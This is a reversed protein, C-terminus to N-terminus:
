SMRVPCSRSSKQLHELVTKMGHGPLPKRCDVICPIFCCQLNPVFKGYYNAIGLFSKLESVNTPTPAERIAQVKDMMPHIGEGSVVHGLYETSSQMFRCKSRNLRVNAKRLRAFVKELTVLCSSDDEGFVLLDDIFGTRDEIGSLIKDMTAQFVPPATKVGYSLRKIRYLGKHTNLTLLPISNEELCLQNFAGSLDLTCFVKPCRGNHALQAFLDQVTPLPYKDDELCTNLRKYDGCIRVSLKEGKLKPVNVTPSAWDSSEVPEIIGAAELRLLEEEVAERLAYPVPRAKQFVPSQGEKLQLSASFGSIGEAPAEFLDAYEDLLEELSTCKRVEFLEKWNLKITRLWDRGMLACKPSSVVILPLTARQDGYMVPVSIEGLVPVQDGSYSTLVASCPKLPYSALLGQYVKEPILSCAAGTDVEMSLEAEGIRVTTFVPKSSPHSNQVSHLGFEASVPLQQSSSGMVEVDALQEPGVQHTSGSSLRSRCSVAFHGTKGCNRCTKGKAPCSSSAALHGRRNCNFCRPQGDGGFSNSHGGAGAQRGSRKTVAHTPMGQPQSDMSMASSQSSSQEWLRCEALADDLTLKAISLLKKRLEDQRVSAVLQDRVQEELMSGFECLRAQKRLRAVFEDFSEGDNFSMQRFVHREYVPNAERLFHHNLKRIAEKYVTDNPPINSADPDIMDEFMEQVVMGANHLLLSKLRSAGTIGRGEAYYQFSRLWSKWRASVDAASGTPVFKPLKEEDMTKCSSGSDEDGSDHRSWMWLRVSDYNCSWEQIGNLGFFALGM